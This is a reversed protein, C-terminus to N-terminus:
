PAPTLRHFCVSGGLATGIVACNPGTLRVKLKGGSPVPFAYEDRPTGVTVGAAGCRIYATNGIAQLLFMDGASAVIGAHEVSGATIEVCQNVTNDDFTGNVRNAHVISPSNSAEVIRTTGVDTVGASSAQRAWRQTTADYVMNFSGVWPAITTPLINDFNMMSGLWRRHNTGDYFLTQSTTVLGISSAPLADGAALGLLPVSLAGTWALLQARVVLGNITAVLNSGDVVEVDAKRNSNQDRIQVNGQALAINATLMACLVTIAKM